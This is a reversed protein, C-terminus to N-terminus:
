GADRSLAEELEDPNFGYPGKAGQYTVRGDPGLVYLREPWGRYLEDATNQMDDLLAPITLDLDRSCAAAVAERENSTTPQAFLVAQAINAEMQWGDTPHAERIYIWFFM